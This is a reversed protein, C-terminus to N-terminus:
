IANKERKKEETLFLKMFLLIKDAEKLVDIKNKGTGRM